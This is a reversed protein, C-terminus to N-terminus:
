VVLIVVRGTPCRVVLAIFFGFWLPCVIKPNRAAVAEYGVCLRDVVGPRVNQVVVDANAAMRPFVENASVVMSLDLIRVGELPGMRTEESEVRSLAQTIVVCHEKQEGLRGHRSHERRYILM